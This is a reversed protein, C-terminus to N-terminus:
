AAKAVGISSGFAQNEMDVARQFAGEVAQAGPKMKAEAKIAMSLQRFAETLYIAREKTFAKGYFKAAQKKYDDTHKSQDIDNNVVLEPKKPEPKAEVVPAPEEVPTPAPEEQPAEVPADQQPEAVPPDQVEAVTVDEQPPEGNRTTEEALKTGAEAIAAAAAAQKEAKIRAKREAKTETKPPEIVPEDRSEEVPTAKAAEKAAKEAAKKADAAESEKVLEDCVPIEDEPIDANLEESTKPKSATVKDNTSDYEVSEGSSTGLLATKAAAVTLEANSLRRAKKDAVPKAEEVPEAPPPEAPPTEAVESRMKKLSEQLNAAAERKIRLEEETAPGEATALKYAADYDDGFMRAVITDNWKLGEDLAQQEAKRKAAVDAARKADKAARRQQKELNAKQKSTLPKVMQDNVQASM